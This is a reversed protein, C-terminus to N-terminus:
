DPNHYRQPPPPADATLDIGDIWGRHAERRLRSHVVARETAERRGRGRWSAFGFSGALLAGVAVGIAAGAFPLVVPQDLADSSLGAIAGLAFGILAGVFMAAGLRDTHRRRSYM